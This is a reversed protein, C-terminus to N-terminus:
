DPVSFVWVGWIKPTFIEGGLNLFHGEFFVAFCTVKSSEGGLNPPHITVGWIQPTHTKLPLSDAKNELTQPDGVTRVQFNVIQESLTELTNRSNNRIESRFHKVTSPAGGVWLMPGDDQVAWTM